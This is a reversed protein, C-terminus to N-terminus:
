TRASARHDLAIAHFFSGTVRGRRSGALAPPSGHPDGVIAFPPDDGQAVISAYHFEHGTLTAGAPGLPGDAELVARRYGLNMKRKAFSTEVSLLGAMAHTMGDADTLKRGLVM